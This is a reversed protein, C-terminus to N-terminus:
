ENQYEEKYDVLVYYVTKLKWLNGETLLKVKKVNQAHELYMNLDLLDDFKILAMNQENNDFCIDVMEVDVWQEKAKIM